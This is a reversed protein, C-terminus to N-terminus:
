KLLKKPKQKTNFVRLIIIENKEILYVIKYSWLVAFRINIQNLIPEIPFKLPFNPLSEVLNLVSNFVLIANQPSDKCIYKYISDLESIAKKRWVVNM